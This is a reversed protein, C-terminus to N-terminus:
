LVKLFHRSGPLGIAGGGGVGVGFDKITHKNKETKPIPQRGDDDTTRRADRTLM